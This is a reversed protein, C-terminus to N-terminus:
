SMNGQYRNNFRVGVEYRVWDELSRTWAQVSEPDFPVISTDAILIDLDKKEVRNYITKTIERCRFVHYPQAVLIIPNFKGLGNDLFQMVVGSTGLYKENPKAIQNAPLTLKYKERLAEAIEWQAYTPATLGDTYLKAIVDALAENSKGPKYVQPDYQKSTVEVNERAPGFGFSFSIIAQGKRLEEESNPKILWETLYKLDEVVIREISSCALRNKMLHKILAEKVVDLNSKEVM